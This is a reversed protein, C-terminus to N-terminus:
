WASGRSAVGRISARMRRNNGNSSVAPWSFAIASIAASMADVPRHVPQQLAVDAAALRDHRDVRHEQCHGVPVLRHQHRRRLDEGPLM